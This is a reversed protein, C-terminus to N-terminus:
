SSIVLLAHRYLFGSYEEYDTLQLPNSLPVKSFIVYMYKLDNDFLRLERQYGM